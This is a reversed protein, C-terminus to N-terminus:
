FPLLGRPLNLGLGYNFFAYTLAAISAGVIANQIWRASGFGRAALVFLVTGAIVFGAPVMLIGDIIMAGSIWGFAQWHTPNAAEAGEDVEKFGTFWAEKLLLLGLLMLAGSVIAPVLRPGVGAYGTAEPLQLTGLAMGIGLVLVAAAVALQGARGNRTGPGAM